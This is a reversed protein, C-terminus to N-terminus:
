QQLSTMDHLCYLYQRREESAKSYNQCLLTHSGKAHLQSNRKCATTLKKQMCNRCLSTHQLVAHLDHLAFTCRGKRAFCSDQCVQPTKPLQMLDDSDVQLLAADPASLKINCLPVESLLGM